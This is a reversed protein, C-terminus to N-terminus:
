LTSVCNVKWWKLPDTKPLVIPKQLYDELENENHYDKKDFGFLNSFYDNEDNENSDVNPSNTPSPASTNKYENEYV